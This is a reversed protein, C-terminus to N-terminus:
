EGGIELEVGNAVLRIVTSLNITRYEMKPMEFVGLMNQATLTAKRKATVEPQTGLVYKAVGLRANMVRLSGDKKRFTVTFIGGGVFDRFKEITLM